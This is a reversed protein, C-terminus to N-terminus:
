NRYPIFLVFCICFLNPHVPVSERSRIAAIQTSKSRCYLFFLFFSLFIEAFALSRCNFRFPYMSPPKHFFRDLKITISGYM